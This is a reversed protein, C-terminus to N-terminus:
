TKSFPSALKLSAVSRGMNCASALSYLWTRCQMVESHAARHRVIVAPLIQYDDTVGYTSLFGVNDFQLM